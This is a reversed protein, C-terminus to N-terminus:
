KLNMLPELRGRRLFLRDFLLLHLNSLLYGFCALAFKSLYGRLAKQPNLWGLLPIVMVAISSVVLILLLGVSWPGFTIESSFRTYILYGIGALAAAGVAWATAQLTRVLKFVKFFLAAGAELQKALDDRRADSSAPPQRMISELELFRWQRRPAHVDFGGWSSELGEDRKHRLDLHKFERETMLYGSLMLAYAEVESFSDLDTRMAALKRQLEKDVGYDTTCSHTDAGQTPDKCGSWDIPQTELGKKLHIFFLGELARSEVRSQLDLLQAERVRDMLIGNCRLPVGIVSDTARRQDEMQGSADSCLILTCGENLLGDVGQNDHVGGDVLRVTRGPYLGNLALPEFLGPVCSSAAVAYGLRYNQLEQTPAEAYWLRRYRENLDVESGILGPPEGMWRGTFHWSHGTNLSTSNLLLVPVKARRRWNAFKPKFEDGPSHSAPRVLLQPMQRPAHRRPDQVSTYIEEEYLEGLRHSRSYSKDFIMRLNNPFSALARTRLNRQVGHLFAEQVRKVAGIYDERTLDRDERTELLHQTELYYHAGVISGGSVTSLVEVTRLVDMEALRALVGIHFLSARFGGGSLALGVRGRYCMLAAPTDEGLFTYLAQWPPDWASPESGEDPPTFGQYRALSVLQRFTTQIEWESPSRNRTMILWPQAEPYQQLGFHLEAMTAAIWDKSEAIGAHTDLMRSLRGLVDSRLSSAEQAFIEAQRPPTGTRNAVMRARSALIDLIYAANVASYGDDRPADTMAASGDAPTLSTEAAAKYLALAEHLNELQGGYEWMRKYVAGGLSQTESHSSLADDILQPPRSQRLGIRELLVIADAYRSSPLLDEDKYTCLALQQIMWHAGPHAIRARDLVKRALGYNLMAKLASVLSKLQKESPTMATGATIGAAAARAVERLSNELSEDGRYVHRTRWLLHTLLLQNEARLSESLAQLEPLDPAAGETAALSEARQIAESKMDTM